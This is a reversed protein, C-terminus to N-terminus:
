LGLAHVEYAEQPASYLTNAAPMFSQDMTASQMSTADATYVTNMDYAPQAYAGPDQEVYTDNPPPVSLDQGVTYNPDAGTSQMGWPDM